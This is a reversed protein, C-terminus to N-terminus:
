NKGNFLAVLFQYLVSFPEQTDNCLSVLYSCNRCAFPMNTKTKPNIKKEHNKKLLVTETESCVQEQKKLTKNNTGTYDIAQFSEDNFHHIIHRNPRMSQKTRPDLVPPITQFRPYCTLVLQHNRQTDPLHRLPPWLHHRCPHYMPVTTSDNPSNLDRHTRNM